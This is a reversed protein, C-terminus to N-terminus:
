PTECFCQPIWLKIEECLLREQLVAKLIVWDSHSQLSKVVASAELDRIQTQSFIQNQERQLYQLYKQITVFKPDNHTYGHGCWLCLELACSSFHLTNILIVGDLVFLVHAVPMIKWKRTAVNPFYFSLQLILKWLTKNLKSHGWFIIMEVHSEYSM